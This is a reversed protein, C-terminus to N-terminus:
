KSNEKRLRSLRSTAIVLTGLGVILLAKIEQNALGTHPLTEPNENQKEPTEVQVTPPLPKVNPNEVEKDDWKAYVTTDKVVPSSFDYLTTFTNDTYWGGFEFNERVPTSGVKALDNHKVNQSPVLSGGNSDFIFKHLVTNAPVNPSWKAYVTVDNLVPSSFDYLSAFSNDTYWGEFIHGNLNPDSVKTAVKGNEVSQSPILPGGNSEFKFVHYVPVPTWKAYLRVDATVPTSFDYQNVLANDIYWGSFTFGNKTPHAPQIVRENLNIETQTPVLSGGNTEFVAEFGFVAQITRVNSYLSLDLSTQTNPIVVVGNDTILRYEVLRNANNTLSVIGTLNDPSTALDYVLDNNFNRGNVTLNANSIDVPQNSTQDLTITGGNFNVRDLRLSSDVDRANMAELTITSNTNMNLESMRVNVPASDRVLTIANNNLLTVSDFNLYVLGGIARPTKKTTIVQNTDFPNVLTRETFPLDEGLAGSKIYMSGELLIHGTSSLSLASGQAAMPMIGQLSLIFRNFSYDLTTPDSQYQNVLAYMFDQDAAQGGNGSIYRADKVSIRNNTSILSLADEISPVNYRNLAVPSINGLYNDTGGGFGYNDGPMFGPLNVTSHKPSLEGRLINQNSSTYHIYANDGYHVVNSGNNGQYGSFYSHGMVAGGGGGGSYVTLDQAVSASVDSNQTSALTTGVLMSILALKMFKNKFFKSKM